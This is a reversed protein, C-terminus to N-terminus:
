VPAFVGNPDYRRRLAALREAHERGFRRAGDSEDEGSFNTQIEPLADPAIRAHLARIRERLADHQEAATAVGILNVFFKTERHAFASGAIPERAVAGGMHQVHLETQPTPLDNAAEALRDLVMDSLERYNASKWYNYRGPPASPDFLQQWQAYPMTGFHAGVARGFTRLPKLAQEGAAPDGSWCFALIVVPRGHWAVDLFPLPPAHTIVALACFEDAATAVVDRFARLVLNADDGPHVAIGTLVEGQPRLRFEFETVVGLGGGGGRLGWFHDPSETRSAYVSRGDPLAVTAGLLNDSALGHKRMLWGVGGGLTLGAVGTSSILGGTTALGVATTAADVDRWLAGGQVTTIRAVPDVTVKCLRSLDVLLAGDAISRGAVNHGGSRVTVRLGNDAAIRLALAVDASDACTVIGAPQRDIAANWVRRATSYEPDSPVVTTGRLRSRLALVIAPNLPSPVSTMLLEKM